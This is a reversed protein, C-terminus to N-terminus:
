SSYVNDINVVYVQLHMFHTVIRSQFTKRKKEIDTCLVDTYLGFMSLPSLLRRVIVPTLKLSMGEM